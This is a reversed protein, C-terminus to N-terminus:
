KRELWIGENSNTMLVTGRGVGDSEYASQVGMIAGASIRRVDVVQALSRDLDMMTVFEDGTARLLPAKLLTLSPDAAPTLRSEQDILGWIRFDKNWDRLPESMAVPQDGVTNGDYNFCTSHGAEDYGCLFPPKARMSNGLAQSPGLINLESDVKVLSPRSGDLLVKGSGKIWKQMDGLDARDVVSGDRKDVALIQAVLPSYAHVFFHQMTEAVAGTSNWNFLMSAQMVTYSRGAKDVLILDNVSSVAMLAGDIESRKFLIILPITAVIKPQASLTFVALSSSRTRVAVSAPGYFVVEQADILPFRWEGGSSRDTFYVETRSVAAAWRADPSLSRWEMGAPPAVTAKTVVNLLAVGTMSYAVTWGDQSIQAGYGSPLISYQYNSRLSGWRVAASQTPDSNLWVVRDLWEALPLTEGNVTAKIAPLAAGFSKCEDYPATVCFEGSVRRLGLIQGDEDVTSAAKWGNSAFPCTAPTCTNSQIKADRATSLEILRDAVAGAGAVGSLAWRRAVPLNPDSSHLHMRFIAVIHNLTYSVGDLTLPESRMAKQWAQGLGQWDIRWIRDIQDALELLRGDRTPTSWDEYDQTGPKCGGIAQCHAYGGEVMQRRFDILGVLDTVAHDFFKELSFTPKLKKIVEINFETGGNMFAPDYQMQSYFPMNKASELHIGSSDVIPWRMHLFGGSKQTPQQSYWYYSEELPRVIKPENSYLVQFPMEDSNTYDIRHVFLTHGSRPTLALHHSGALLARTSIEIPYSDAFLTHTYTNDLLYNVAKLFRQDKMWDPDTPLKMWAPRVSNQSFLDGTGGLHNAAPLGHIRAFIWRISYAADACDTTLNFRQFFDVSVNQLVWDSYRQEWAWSWQETVKWLPTTGVAPRLHRPVRKQYPTLKEHAQAAALAERETAFAVRWLRDQWGDAAPGYAEAIWFGEDPRVIVTRSGASFKHQAFAFMPALM